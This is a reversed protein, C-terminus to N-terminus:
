HFLSDSFDVEYMIPSPQVRVKVFPLPPQFSISNLAEEGDFPDADRVAEKLV